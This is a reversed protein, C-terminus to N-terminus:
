ETIVVSKERNIDTIIAMFLKAFQEKWGRGHQKLIQDTFGALESHGLEHTIILIIALDGTVKYNLLDPRKLADAEDNSIIAALESQFRANICIRPPARHYHADERFDVHNCLRSPKTFIHIFNPRVSPIGSYPFIKKLRRIIAYEKGLKTRDTTYAAPISIDRLLNSPHMPDRRSVFKGKEDFHM